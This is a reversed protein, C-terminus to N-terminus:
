PCAGQAAYTHGADEIWAAAAKASIMVGCVPDNVLRRAGRRPRARVEYVAEATAAICAHCGCAGGASVDSTFLAPITISM